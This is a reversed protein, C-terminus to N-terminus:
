WRVRDKAPWSGTLVLGARTIAQLLRHWVDPDGHGFVITVVGDEAVVRRAQAFARAIRSDYFDQTRHDLKKATRKARFRDIIEERKDQLGNPDPTFTM